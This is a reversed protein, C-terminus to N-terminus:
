CPVWGLPFRPIPRTLSEVVMVSGAPGAEEESRQSDLKGAEGELRQPDALEAGVVPRLLVVL